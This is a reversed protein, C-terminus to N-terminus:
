MACMGICLVFFYVHLVCYKVAFMLEHGFLVTCVSVREVSIVCEATLQENCM